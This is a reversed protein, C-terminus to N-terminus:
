PAAARRARSVGGDAPVGKKQVAEPRGKHGATIYVEDAEVEGSLQPDPQAREIGQRLQKTM